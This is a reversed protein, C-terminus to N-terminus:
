PRELWSWFSEIANGVKSVGWACVWVGLLALLGADSGYAVGFPYVVLLFLGFLVWPNTSLGFGLFDRLCGKLLRM